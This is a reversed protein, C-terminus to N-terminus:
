VQNEKSEIDQCFNAYWRMSLSSPPSNIEHLSFGWESKLLRLKMNSCYNFAM